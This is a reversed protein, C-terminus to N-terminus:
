KGSARALRRKINQRVVLHDILPAFVNMFLIALMVGEPYAPNIIRILVVLVGILFGYIWRGPGTASSSVPDTAMFIAGFAFGGLAMHWYPPLSFFALTNESQFMSFVSSMVTLGLVCGTVIRWSAVGTVLLFVLGLVCALTSTEGISGPIFGLFVDQFAYGAQQLATVVSIGKPTGAAVALPTARTFGDVAVWVSDGSIQAPYAFFIFARATLAPNLINMGTGGFIEKGIVVGFSIGVAVQWLPITPPLVLAFLIGTVLFGENIEHKRVVAFLVEWFGGAAYSVIIIPLVKLLGLWWCEWFSYESGKALQIQYGTNYFGMLICPILAIVVFSMVRKLDVADRVYPAKKTTKGLTMLFADMAEHVPYLKELPAGKEFLKRIKKSRKEFFETLM